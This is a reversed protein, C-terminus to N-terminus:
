ETKIKYKKSRESQSYWLPMNHHTTHFCPPTATPVVHCYCANEYGPGHEVFMNSFYSVVSCTWFTPNNSIMGEKIMAM